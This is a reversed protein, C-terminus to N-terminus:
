KAKKLANQAISVPNKNENEFYVPVDIQAGLVKLQEIAAPRYVDAAAMMVSKGKKKIFSALKATHTTKGSGQLGAMLIIAPNGNLNVDATQGGLLLALEDNVIKVLLQGPSVATLVNQGLAKEKVTDTFQKAIKYNVDADLLAKRIEKITEAVNIETIKGQGKLTKFAKDLKSSLSEFM